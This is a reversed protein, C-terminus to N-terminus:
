FVREEAGGSYVASMYRSVVEFSSTGWMSGDEHLISFVAARGNAEPVGLVKAYDDVQKYSGCQLALKTGGEYTFERALASVHTHAGVGIDYTSGDLRLSQEIGHTANYISKGRWKHRVRFKFLAKGVHVEARLDGRAYAKRPLHRQAIEALYDVGSALLTWDDHNGSVMWLQKEKPLLGLVYKVMAWQDDITFKEFMLQRQLKGIVWNNVVDGANGVFVGPTTAVFQIDRELLEYDVGTDPLHWDATHMICVPGRDFFISLPPSAAEALRKKSALKAQRWLEEVDIDGELLPDDDGYSMIPGSM